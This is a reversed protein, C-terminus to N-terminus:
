AILPKYLSYALSCGLLHLPLTHAARHTTRGAGLACQRFECLEEVRQRLQLCALQLHSAGHRMTKRTATLLYVGRAGREQAKAQSLSGGEGVVIGDQMGRTLPDLVKREGVTATTLAVGCLRGADDCQVYLKFGDGWGLGHKSKRAWTRFTRHQRARAVPCVAM